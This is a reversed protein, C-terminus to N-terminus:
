NVMRIFVADLMNVDVNLRVPRSEGIEPIVPGFNRTGLSNSDVDLFEFVITTITARSSVNEVTGEFSMTMGSMVLNSFRLGTPHNLIPSLRLDYLAQTGVVSVNPPQGFTGGPQNEFDPITDISHYGEMGRETWRITPQLISFDLDEFTTRHRTQRVAHIDGAFATVHHLFSLTSTSDVLFMAEDWDPDGAVVVRFSDVPDLSTLSNAVFDVQYDYPPIMDPPVLFAYMDKEEYSFIVISYFHSFVAQNQIALFVDENELINARMFVGHRVSFWEGLPLPFVDPIVAHVIQVPEEDEDEWSIFDIEIPDWEMEVVPAEEWVVPPPDNSRCATLVFTTVM